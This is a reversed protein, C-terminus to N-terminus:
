KKRRRENIRLSIYDSTLKFAMWVAGGIAAKIGYELFGSYDVNALLVAATLFGNTSTDHVPSKIEM